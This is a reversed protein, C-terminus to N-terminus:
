WAAALLTAERRRASAPMRRACKSLSASLYLPIKEGSTAVTANLAEVFSSMKRCLPPAAMDSSPFLCCTMTVSMWMGKQDITMKMTFHAKAEIGAMMIRVKSAAKAQLISLPSSVFVTTAPM